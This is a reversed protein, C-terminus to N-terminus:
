VFLQIFFREVGALGIWYKSTPSKNLEIAKDFLEKALQQYLNEDLQMGFLQQTFVQL